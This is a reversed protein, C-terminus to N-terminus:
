HNWIAAKHRVGASYDCYVSATSGNGEAHAYCVLAGSSRYGYAHAAVGTGNAGVWLIEGAGYGQSKATWGNSTCQGLSTWVLQESTCDASADGRYIVLAALTSAIAFAWRLRKTKM